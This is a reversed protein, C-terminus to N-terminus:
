ISELHQALQHAIEAAPLPKSFYFGQYQDCGKETLFTIQEKTEVGEAIVKMKLSHAMAITATVIAADNEDTTVDKIFSIDIKLKDITYYKLYSLSSYGTGFDDISIQFGMASLKRLTEVVTDVNEMLMSETIELALDSAVVGTENLIRTIDAVMNRQQFQKASLNIAMRPVHYGEERWAKIQLCATKIVWEGIPMILGTVEALGIFKLPSVLGKKSHRWRLLAEMGMLEGTVIDVVPQFYLLLEDNRMARHLDVGLDHREVALRNMEPTFFQYKNRGTAKAHYMATDSHKLLTDADEGDNPYLAIGISGDIHLEKKNIHFPLTLVHLIKDAVAKVDQINKIHPLIVIFEDGGQRAATDESRISSVIRGAVEKLLLDGVSHGLSDNIIKFHDLDIFLIASIDHHRHNYAIAQTIRDQLLLRNPLGTLVDHSAMYNIRQQSQKRELWMRLDDAILNILNQEDPLLFPKDETYFVRIYGCVRDNISIEASIGHSLDSNYKDSTYLNNDLEIAVATFDSFQMAPILRKFIQSCLSGISLNQEMDRRIAYLCIREKLREQLMLEKQKSVTIDVRVSIYRIIRGHSDKLPVITADVWYLVGNKQRNCIEKHWVKGHAITAWMEIFFAKPHVGSNLIRHDQGILETRSYGSIKCFRDNAELILGARDSVSVLALEGIAEIYTMRETIVSQLEENLLHLKTKSSILAENAVQLEKNTCQLEENTSQLEENSSRLEEQSTQMEEQTAHTEEHALQLEAVLSDLAVDGSQDFKENNVNLEKVPHKSVCVLNGKADILVSAPSYGRLALQDTFALSDKRSSAAPVGKEISNLVPLFNSLVDPMEYQSTKDIRKYIRLKAELPFFLSHSSKITEASGLVLIGCPNLAYHFLSLIKEQLERDLYILLNRCSVIDLKSFPVDAIVNQLAFTVMERIESNLQYGNETAVFFRNLRDSSIDESISAPYLARRAHNIAGEDLDTAFIKLSYHRRPEIQDLVEKFIIALGYAEEGTSCAPIWVRVERGGPYATLLSPFVESKLYQWSELDRFFHTVKILLEKFLLDLEQTSERLYDVYTAITDMKHLKIRREIRRYMTSKKYQSFDNGTRAHLLLMIQKLASHCGKESFSEDSADNQIRKFCSAIRDPLEEALAVFDVLGADIASRPMGDFQSSLPDQALTLGNKEKIALLGLTGDTGIGSLVVGIASKGCDEALTRFFHDIPLHPQDPSVLDLLSLIGSSIALDKNPPIVYVCNPQVKMQNEAEIVAMTTFQQLLEPLESIYAPDLHQVVVFAMGSNTPVESLFQRLAEIGGASTGIGIVPFANLASTNSINPSVHSTICLESGVSVPNDSVLELESESESKSKSKRAM